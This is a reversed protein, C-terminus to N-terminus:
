TIYLGLILAMVIALGWKLFKIDAKIEALDGEAPGLLVTNM